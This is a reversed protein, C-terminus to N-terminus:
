RVWNYHFTFFLVLDVLNYIGMDEISLELISDLSVARFLARVRLFKCCIESMDFALNSVEVLLIRQSKLLKGGCGKIAKL